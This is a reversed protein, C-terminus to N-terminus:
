ADTDEKIMAEAIATAEKRIAALAAQEDDITAHEIEVVRRLLRPALTPHKELRAQEVSELLDALDTKNKTM